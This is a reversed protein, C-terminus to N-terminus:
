CSLSFRINHVIRLCLIGYFSFALLVGGVVFLACHLLLHGCDACVSSSCLSNKKEFRRTFISIFILITKSLIPTEIRIQSIAKDKSKEAIQNM